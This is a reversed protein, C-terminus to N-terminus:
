INYFVLYIYTNKTYNGHFESFFILTLNNSHGFPSKSKIPSNWSLVGFVTFVGVYRKMQISQHSLSARQRHKPFKSLDYNLINTKECENVLYM